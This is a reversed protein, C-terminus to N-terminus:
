YTDFSGCRKIYKLCVNFIMTGILLWLLNVSIYMIIQNIEIVGGLYANRTIDIGYSFPLIYIISPRTPSLANSIFLLATQLIFTFQGVSKQILTIGGMILGMGFMGIVSPICYIYSVFIMKLDQMSTNGTIMMFLFIGLVSLISYVMYTFLQILMIFIINFKSQLELELIGKNADNKITSSSFGLATSSMQWFIYGILVLVKGETENLSYFSSFATNANFYYIAIYMLTFLLFDSVISVKYRSLEKFDLIMETKMMNYYGRM